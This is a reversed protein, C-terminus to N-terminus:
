SHITQEDKIIRAYQERDEPHMFCLLHKAKMYQWYKMPVNKHYMSACNIMREIIRKNPEM